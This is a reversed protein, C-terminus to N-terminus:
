LRQVGAADLAELSRYRLGFWYIQHFVLAMNPDPAQPDDWHDRWLQFAERLLSSDDRVLVDMDLLDASMGYMDALHHSRAMALCWELVTGDWSHQAQQYAESALSYEPQASFHRHLRAEIGPSTIDTMDIQTLSYSMDLDGRGLLVSDFRAFGAPPNEPFTPSKKPEFIRGSLLPCVTSLPWPTALKPPDTGAEISTAPCRQM